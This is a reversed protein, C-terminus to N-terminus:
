QQFININIISLESHPLPNHHLLKRFFQICHVHFTYVGDDYCLAKGDNYFRSRKHYIFLTDLYIFAEPM